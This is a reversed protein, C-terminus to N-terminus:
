KETEKRVPKRGNGRLGSMRRACALLVAAELMRGVAGWCGKYACAVDGHGDGCGHLLVHLCCSCSSLGWACLPSWWVGMCHQVFVVAVQCEMFVVGCLHSGHLSTLSNQDFSYSM